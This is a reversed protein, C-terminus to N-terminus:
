ISLIQFLFAQFQEFLQVDHFDVVSVVQRLKCMVQIMCFYFVLLFLFFIPMEFVFNGFFVVTLLSYLTLYHPLFLLLLVYFLKWCSLTKSLSFPSHLSSLYLLYACDCFLIGEQGCRHSAKTLSAGQVRLGTVQEM